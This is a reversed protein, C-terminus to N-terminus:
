ELGAANFCQLPITSSHRLLKITYLSQSTRDFTPHRNPKNRTTSSLSPLCEETQGLITLVANQNNQKVAHKGATCHNDDQSGSFRKLMEYSLSKLLKSVGIVTQGKRRSSLM